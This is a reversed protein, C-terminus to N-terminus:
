IIIDMKIDYKDTPIKDFKQFPFCIGIKLKEPIKELFRDYYGKGRGLRNGHSDFGMGPVVVVDITEYDQFLNGCPELINFSGIHLDDDNTYTRLEMETESTVVPLIIEKGRNKLEHIADLTYVEDPLSCYLMITKAKNIASLELLKRMIPQSLEKLQTDSYQKKLLRVEKRLEKKTLM